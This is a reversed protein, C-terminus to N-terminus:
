PKTIVTAPEFNFSGLQGNTRETVVVGKDFDAAVVRRECLDEVCQEAAHHRGRAEKKANSGLRQFSEFGMGIDTESTAM